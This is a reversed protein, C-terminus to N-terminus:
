YSKELQVGVSGLTYPVPPALKKVCVRAHKISPFQSLNLLIAKAAAELLDFSKETFTRNVNDIIDPYSIVQDLCDELLDGQAEVELILDIGFKQGLKKEEPFVGHYAFLELADIRIQYREKEISGNSM